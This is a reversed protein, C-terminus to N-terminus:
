PNDPEAITRRRVVAFLLLMALPMIPVHLYLALPRALAPAAFTVFLAAREGDCFGRKLGRGALWLMPFALMVM